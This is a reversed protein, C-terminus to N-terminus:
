RENLAIKVHLCQSCAKFDPGVASDGRNCLLDGFQASEIFGIQLVTGPTETDETIWVVDFIEPCHPKFALM